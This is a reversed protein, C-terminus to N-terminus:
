EPIISAAKALKAWKALESKQFEGLEAPKLPSVQIGMVAFRERVDSRALIKQSESALRDVIANPTGAPAFLAFSAILEFGKVTEAIRRCVLSGAGGSGAILKGPHQKAPAILEKM